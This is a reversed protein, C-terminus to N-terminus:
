DTADAQTPRAFVLADERGQDDPYYGKRVGIRKFGEQLYLRVAVHNSKRVELFISRAGKEEAIEVLKRLMKRGLGQGQRQPSVCLNLVHAEGAAVSLLGYAEVTNEVEYVIATYGVRICDRLIGATWPHRYNQKEIEMIHPVDALTMPRFGALTELEPNLAM